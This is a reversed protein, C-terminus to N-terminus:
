NKLDINLLEKAKQKAVDIADYNTYEECYMHELMMNFLDEPTNIKSAMKERREERKKKTNEEAAAKTMFLNEILDGSNGLVTIGELAYYEQGKETKLCESDIKEEVIGSWKAYRWVHTGLKLNKEVM